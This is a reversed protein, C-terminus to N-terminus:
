IIHKMSTFSVHVIKIFANGQKKQSGFSFSKTVNAGVDLMISHKHLTEKLIQKGGEGM